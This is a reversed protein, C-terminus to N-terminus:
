FPLDPAWAFQVLRVALANQRVVTRTEGQGSTTAVVPSWVAISREQMSLHLVTLRISEAIQLLKLVAPGAGV